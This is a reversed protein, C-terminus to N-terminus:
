YVNIQLSNFVKENNMNLVYTYNETRSIISTIVQTKYPISTYSSDGFIRLITPDIAYYKLDDLLHFPVIPAKREKILEDYISIEKQTYYSPYMVYLYHAGVAYEFINESVETKVNAKTKSQVVTFYDSFPTRLEHVKLLSKADIDKEILVNGNQMLSKKVIRRIIYEPEFLTTLFLEENHIGLTNMNFFTIYLKGRKSLIKSTDKQFKILRPLTNIAGFSNQLYLVDISNNIFSTEHLLMNVNCSSVVEVNPIGDNMSTNSYLARVSKNDVIANFYNLVSPKKGIIILNNMNCIRIMETSDIVQPDFAHIVYEHPNNTIITEVIYQYLLKIISTIRSEKPVTFFKHCYAISMKNFTESESVDAMIYNDSVDKNSVDKDSVDKNSVDKAMVWKGGDHRLRLTDNHDFTSLPLTFRWLNLYTYHKTPSYTIDLTDSYYYMNSGYIALFRVHNSMIDDWSAPKEIPEIMKFNAVDIPEGYVIDYEEGSKVCMTQRVITAYKSVLVDKVYPAKYYIEHNLESISIDNPKWLNEYVNVNKFDTSPIDMIICKEVPVENMFKNTIISPLRLSVIGKQILLIHQYSYNIDILSVLKLFNELISVPTGVYTCEVDYKDVPGNLLRSDNEAEGYTYECRAVKWSFLHVYQTRLKYTDVTELNMPAAMKKYDVYALNMACKSDESEKVDILSISRTLIAQSTGKVFKIKTSPFKPRLECYNRSVDLIEATNYQLLRKWIVSPTEVFKMIFQYNENTSNQILSLGYRIRNAHSGFINQLVISIAKDDM